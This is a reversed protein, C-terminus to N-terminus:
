LRSLPLRITVQLGGLASNALSIEGHHALVINRCLSLGLGAGGTERSRSSEARYLRDFLRDHLEVDVGPASDDLQIQADNGHQTVCLKVEGPSQTYKLSNKFLNMMLQTLRQTDGLIILPRASSRFHFSLGQAIWSPQMIAAAEAVVEALDCREKRYTLAGIDSMSLDYLDGILHQLRAVHNQLRSLAKQDFERVGDELAELDAQLVAVPTLLEHSIDAVWHKRHNEAASLSEGLNNLHTALVALEDRGDPRLRQEYKGMSFQRVLNLLARIRRVLWHSLPFALVAALLLSILILSLLNNALDQTFRHAYFDRQEPRPPLGLFGVTKGNVVLPRLASEPEVDHQGAVSQKDADLLFLPLLPPGGDMHEFQNPLRPSDPPPSGFGEPPPRQMFPEPNVPGNDRPASVSFRKVWVKWQFPDRFDDWSERELYHQELAKALPEIHQQEKKQLYSWFGIEVSSRFVVFLLIALGGCVALTLTFIQNRLKM